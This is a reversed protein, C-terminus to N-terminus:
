DSQNDAFLQLVKSVVIPKISEPLMADAKPVDDARSAPNAAAVLRDAIRTVVVDGPQLAVIGLELGDGEVAASGCPVPKPQKRSLVAQGEM